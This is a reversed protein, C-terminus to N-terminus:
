LQTAFFVIGFRLKCRTEQSSLRVQDTQSYLLTQALNPVAAGPRCFWFSFSGRRQGPSAASGPTLLQSYNTGNSHSLIFIM